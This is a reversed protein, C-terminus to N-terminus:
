SAKTKKMFFNMYNSRANHILILLLPNKQGWFKSGSTSSLLKRVLLFKQM